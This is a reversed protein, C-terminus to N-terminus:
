GMEATITGAIAEQRSRMLEFARRLVEARERPARAAWGAAAAHAAGVAELADAPTADAVEALTSGDGPDRVPFRGGDGAPRWRGGVYLDTYPAVAVSMAM